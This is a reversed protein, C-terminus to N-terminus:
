TGVGWGQPRLHSWMAPIISILADDHGLHPQDIFTTANNIIPFDLTQIKIAEDVHCALFMSPDVHLELASPTADKAVPDYYQCKLACKFGNDLKV